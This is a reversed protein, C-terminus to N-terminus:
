GDIDLVFQIQTPRFQQKLCSWIQPVAQTSFIFTVHNGGINFHTAAIVGVKYGLKDYIIKANNQPTMCRRIIIIEDVKNQAVTTVIKQTNM